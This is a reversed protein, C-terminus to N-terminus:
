KNVKFKYIGASEKPIEITNESIKIDAETINIREKNEEDNYVMDNEGSIIFSEGSTAISESIGDLKLSQSAHTANVVSITLYEGDETLTASVDLPEPSGTFEFPQTGFEKRYLKLVLGTGELWADTKTTKIAGIVNVTQAYNAMYYIDSQRSFENLGAAIGLADRLFYRTGLLGYVHPGYWYNWEDMAIKINKEAIGPIEKRARRHEEAVASIVEPMQNVHTLLGGAHWNQKYFHESIYTMYAASNEYMMDNWKGPYGVAILDIDPDVEWMAKAVKNHKKVYDEIPMHGLQWDGFMENGVAWLKVHYPEPHGNKARWQGMKTSVAGNFYEVENAALEATGLGTNVAINAKTDLIECLAMFEHVGVDNYELGNWAREFKTPRKDPDGIGDKWDYGSVFNGGPWRYIPADLQKMLEIVEARYGKINDSPMLSVAALTLKGAGEFTIELSGNDSTEESSFKFAIKQFDTGSVEFSEKNGNLAVTVKKIGNGKFVLRGDYTKDSVLALKQQKLSLNNEVQYVPLKGRSYAYSSDISVLNTDVATEWPSLKTGPVYYFKRDDLMEAWMGGYISKGMHEIFQGYIYPSMPDLKEDLNISIEPKLEKASIEELQFNDFYIKGKAQGKKGLLFELMFSDDMETSFEMEVKTWDTDGKFITDGTFEFKGLRLGAGGHENEGEVGETKVFGTVKYTAFPKVDIKKFWREATLTDSSLMLVQSNYQDSAVNIYHAPASWQEYQWGSEKVNANKAPSLLNKNKEKECAGLSCVMILLFLINIYKM